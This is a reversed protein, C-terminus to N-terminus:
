RLKGIGELLHLHVPTAVGRRAAEEVFWGNRWRWEKVSARTTPISASYACLRGLLWEIPLDVGMSARGVRSLERVLSRLEATREACITGVDCDFTECLVGFASTWILKELEFASFRAWDVSIAPIGLDVLWGVTELSRPGCLPSPRDGIEIPAGLSPVSFYLLGRTSQGLLQERLWPRVMGNQVFVLDERRHEPVQAVVEPLDDNRTAVLIPTGPRGELAEWGADRRVLACPLGREEARRALATGVRGAGIVIM